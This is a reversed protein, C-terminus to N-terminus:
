KKCGCSGSAARNASGGLAGSVAGNRLPNAGSPVGTGPLDHHLRGIRLSLVDRGNVPGSWGFRTAGRNLIGPANSYGYQAARAGGRGLLFGTPGLGSLAAGSLAATGVSGWDVCDLDGGNQILQLALDVGARTLAGESAAICWPCEGTPDTYNIPNGNVYSYITVGSAFDDYALCKKSSATRTQPCSVFVTRGPKSTKKRLRSNRRVPARSALPM